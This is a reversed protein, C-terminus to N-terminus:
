NHMETTNEETILFLKTKKRTQVCKEEKALLFM